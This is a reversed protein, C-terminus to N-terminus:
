SHPRCFGPSFSLKRAVSTDGADPRADRSQLLQAGGNRFLEGYWGNIGGFPGPHFVAKCGCVVKNCAVRGICPAASAVPQFHHQSCPSCLRRHLSIFVLQNVRHCKNGLQNRISSILVALPPRQSTTQIAVRCIITLVCGLVQM